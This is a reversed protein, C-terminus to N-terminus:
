VPRGARLSLGHMVSIRGNELRLGKVAQKVHETWKEQTLPRTHITNCHVVYASYLAASPAQKSAGVTCRKRIFSKVTAPVLVTAPLSELIKRIPRERIQKGTNQCTWQERVIQAVIDRRSLGSGALQAVREKFGATPVIKVAARGRKAAQRNSYCALIALVDKAMEQEDTTAAEQENGTRSEIFRTGKAECLRQIIGVGFRAARDRFEVVLASLKGDALLSCMKLFGPRTDSLGSGVESIVKVTQGPFREACYSRLREIQRELNGDVKQKNTSVRAYALVCRGPM